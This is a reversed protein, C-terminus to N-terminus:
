LRFVAYSIIQHSSNLRTSKRDIEITVDADSLRGGFLNARELRGGGTLALSERDTGAGEVAFHGSVTGAYRPDQMWGVELGAGFRHLDMDEIEGDGSFTLPKASTDITGVTGARITAGLFQSSAFTAHGAVFPR